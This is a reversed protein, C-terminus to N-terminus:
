LKFRRWISLCDHRYNTKALSQRPMPVVLSQQIDTVGSLKARHRADFEVQGSVLEPILLSTDKSITKTEKVTAKVTKTFKEDSDSDSEVLERSKIRRSRQTRSKKTKATDPKTKAKAALATNMEKITNTDLSKM